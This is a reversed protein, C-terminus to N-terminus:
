GWFRWWQLRLWDIVDRSWIAILKRRDVDIKGVGEMGPRLRENLGTLTGEVEFASAEELVVTVPTIRTVVFEFRAQPLAALLLDGTQGVTVDGIRAEPVQLVVRYGALPTLEFLTDGRRVAAGLRQSLDGSVVLGDFPAVLKARDLQNEVLDMEASTQEIQAEIIRLQARDRKGLAEQRQSQLRARQSVWKLRELRLDREDLAALQAGSDVVDGARHAASSLYGDFPAAVIRRESGEIRADAALRYDSDYICFLAVVAVIALVILKRAVYRPGILKGVQGTFTFWAKTILWRDNRRKEELAMAVMSAIAEAFRAESASFPAHAPRELIMLAHFDDDGFLPVSMVAGEDSQRSLTAHAETVYPDETEPRPYIVTRQQELAEEMAATLLRALNMRRGFKASNSLLDLKVRRESVRGLSVRSCDMLTALETIFRMGAAKYRPEQLVCALLDTAASVQSQMEQQATLTQRTLALEIWGAGWQLQGMAFELAPGAMSNAVVAVVARLEGDAKIPYALGVGAPSNGPTIDTVLASQEAVVREVLETLVTLDATEDPWIAVPALGASGTNRLVLIGAQFGPVLSCQLALWSDYVKDAGAEAFQDWLGPDVRNVTPSPFLSEVAM